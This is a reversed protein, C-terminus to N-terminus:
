VLIPVHHINPFLRMIKEEATPASKCRFQAQESM